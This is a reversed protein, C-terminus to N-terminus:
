FRQPQLIRKKDAEVDIELDIDIDVKVDRESQEAIAILRSYKPNNCLVRGKWSCISDYWTGDAKYLLVCDEDVHYRHYYDNPEGQHWNLYETTTGDTWLWGTPDSVREDSLDNLGILCGPRKDGSQPVCLSTAELNDAESHISALSTGTYVYIRLVWQFIYFYCELDCVLTIM